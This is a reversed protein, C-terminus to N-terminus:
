IKYCKKRFHTKLRNYNTDSPSDLVKPHLDYVRFRVGFVRSCAHYIISRVLTQNVCTNCRQSLCRRLPRMNQTRNQTSNEM